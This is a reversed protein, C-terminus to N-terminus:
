RLTAGPVMGVIFSLTSPNRVKAFYSTAGVCSGSQTTASTVGAVAWVGGESLLLPGGSDGSCVSATSPSYQTELTGGGVVSVSTTGARLTTGNGFQDKGWGVLAAVEGVRPDRSALVAFSPPTLDQATLVVGVDSSSDNARYQPNAQFSAAPVTNGSGPWISVTVTDGLLCHAATLVARPAIVSGSCAGTPLGDKDRLNVLVVPSNTSPCATGNLIGLTVSPANGLVGCAGGPITPPASPSTPATSSSSGGGCAACVLASVGLCIARAASAHHIFGRM